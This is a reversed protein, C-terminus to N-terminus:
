FGTWFRAVDQIWHFTIAAELGRRRALIVPPIGWLLAMIAGIGLAVFPAELFLDDFHSFNHILMAIIGTIWAANKLETSKLWQWLLGWMAFRYIVEEVIGPQLADALAALPNQWQISQGQTFQLAFVNLIALPLGIVLGMIIGRGMKQWNGLAAPFEVPGHPRMLVLGGLVAFFTFTARILAQGEHSKVVGFFPYPSFLTAQWMTLGVVLGLFLAVLWDGINLSRYNKVLVLGAGIVTLADFIQFTSPIPLLNALLARGIFIALITVLLILFKHNM